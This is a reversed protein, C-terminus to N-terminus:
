PNSNRLTWWPHQEQLLPPPMKKDKKLREGLAYPRKEKQCAGKRTQRPAQCQKKQGGANGMDRQNRPSKFAHAYEGKFFGGFYFKRLFCCAPWRAVPSRSTKNQLFAEIQAKKANVSGQILGKSGGGRGNLAQNMEKGFARVDMHESAVAYQYGMQENGSFVGAAGKVKPCVQM